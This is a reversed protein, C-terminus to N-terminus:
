QDSVSASREIRIAVSAVPNVLDSSAVCVCSWHGDSLSFIVVEPFKSLTIAQNFRDVEDASLGAERLSITRSAYLGEADSKAMPTTSYAYDSLGDLIELGIRASNWGDGALRALIHRAAREDIEVSM